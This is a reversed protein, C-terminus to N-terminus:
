AIDLPDKVDRATDDNWREDKKREAFFFCILYFIFSGGDEDGRVGSFL